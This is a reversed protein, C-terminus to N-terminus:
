KLFFEHPLENVRKYIEISCNHVDVERTLSVSSVLNKESQNKNQRRTM